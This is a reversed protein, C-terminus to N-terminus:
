SFIGLLHFTRCFRKKIEAYEENCEAEQDPMELKCPQKRSVVRFLDPVFCPKRFPAARVNYQEPKQEQQNMEQYPIHGPQFGPQSLQDEQHRYAYKEPHVPAKFLELFFSDCLIFRM